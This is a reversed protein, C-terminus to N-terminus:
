DYAHREGRKDAMVWGHLEQVPYCLLHLLRLLHIVQMKLM